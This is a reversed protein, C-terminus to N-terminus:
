SRAADRHHNRRAAPRDVDCSLGRWRELPSPTVIIVVVLSEATKWRGISRTHVSQDDSELRPVRKEGPPGLTRHTGCTDDDAFIQNARERIQSCTKAGDMM